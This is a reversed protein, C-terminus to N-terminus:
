YMLKPYQVYIGSNNESGGIQGGPAIVGRARRVTISKENGHSNINTVELAVFDQVPADHPYPNQSGQHGQGQGADTSNQPPIVPVVIVFPTSIGAADSIAPTHNGNNVRINDGIHIIDRTSPDTVANSIDPTNVSQREYNHWFVGDDPSPHFFITTPFDGISELYDQAFALPFTQAGNPGFPLIAMAQASTAASLIGMLPAFFYQVEGNNNTANKDVRVIVAPVDTANPTINTSLLAFNGSEDKPATTSDWSLRWYGTLVQCDTLTTGAASNERVAQSATSVGQVWNITGSSGDYASLARAGALAGADAARQLEAKVTLLYGIDIALAAGALFVMVGAAALISISGSQDSHFQVLKKKIYQIISM